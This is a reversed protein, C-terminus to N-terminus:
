MVFTYILNLAYFWCSTVYNCASKSSQLTKVIVILSKRGKGAETSPQVLIHYEEFPNLRGVVLYTDSTDFSLDRGVKLHYSVIGNPEAPESWSVNVSSSNLAVANIINIDSPVTPLFFLM